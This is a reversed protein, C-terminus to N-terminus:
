NKAYKEFGTTMTAVGNKDIMYGELGKTEQIFEIGKKGMAFAATAFRDAEYVNEGIVTLSVIDDLDGGKPSYASSADKPVYIHKGREYVGSTAVGEGSLYIIKVNENKKFPNRVGIAWKKNKQNLGLTQIDSGANIYFNKYGKRKLIKSANFIAWGKVIGSPDMFGNNYVDFYGNTAKRTEESLKLIEKMKASSAQQRIRKDNIRTVESNQKYPSFREDVERFYDFAKDFCEDPVKEAIEIIVPMGMIYELRKM